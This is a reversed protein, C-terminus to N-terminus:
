LFWVGNHLTSFNTPSFRFTTSGPIVSPDYSQDRYYKQNNTMAPRGLLAASDPFLASSVVNIKVSISRRVRRLREHGRHWTSTVLGFIDFHIKPKPWQTIRYTKLVDKRLFFLIVRFCRKLLGFLLFIPSECFIGLFLTFLTRKVNLITFRLRKRHYRSSFKYLKEDVKSM